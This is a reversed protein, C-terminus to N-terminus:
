FRTREGNRGGRIKRTKSKVDVLQIKEKAEHYTYKIQKNQPLNLIRNKTAKMEDILIKEAKDKKEKWLRLELCAKTYDDAANSLKTNFVTEQKENVLSTPSM